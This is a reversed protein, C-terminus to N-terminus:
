PQQPGQGKGHHGGVLPRQRPVTDWQAQQGQTSKITMAEITRGPAKLKLKLVAEPSGDGRMEEGRGTKDYFGRLTKVKCSSEYQAGAQATAAPTSEPPAAPETAATEPTASVGPTDTAAPLPLNGQTEPAATEPTANVHPTASVAPLPLNGQNEPPASDPTPNGTATQAPETPEPTATM